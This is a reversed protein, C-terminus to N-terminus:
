IGSISEFIENLNRPKLEDSLSDKQTHKQSLFQHTSYDFHRRPIRGLSYEEYVNKDAKFYNCQVADTSLKHEKLFKCFIPLGEFEYSNTRAHYRCLFCNKFRNDAEYLLIVYKRYITPFNDSNGNYVGYGAYLLKHYIVSSYKRNKLYETVSHDILKSKFSSYGYFCLFRKDCERENDKCLTKVEFNYVNIKESEIDICQENLLSLDDEDRVLFEIIRKGSEIKQIECKHTVAIEIYIRNGVIDTIMLDPIFNGDKLEMEIKGFRKILDYQLYDIGLDCPIGFINQHKDCIVKVKYKLYLPIRQELCKNYRNYFIEKALRHLYSEPNCELRTKHAFHHKKKEGLRPILEKGCGVCKWLQNRNTENVSTINTIVGDLDYAYQYLIM